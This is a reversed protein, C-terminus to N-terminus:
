FGFNVGFTFTRTNPYMGRKDVGAELGTVNIDPTLGSYGSITALNTVNGYIRLNRIFKNHLFSFTYGLTVNDIKLFNGKELYYTSFIPDQTVGSNLADKYVNTGNKDIQANTGFYVRGENFIDYDFMGRLFFSFDFNKYTFTNQLAAKFKPLGNGIFTRDADSLGEKGDLDRINYTGDANIGDCIYGYFSGVPQGEQLRQAYGLNGPSPISYRDEYSAKYLDNSLSTLKNKEWSFTLNATYSFDKTKVVEGNVSLEIGTNKMTGVNTLIKDYILSPQQATYEGILDKTTRQYWDITGSLRNNFFGYDFGINLSIAKEWKLDPNPNNGPGYTATLWNGNIADWNGAGTGYRILSQYPDNPLSGTVGYGVRFKLIDLANFNQMFEERSLMWGASVSPFYAWKNNAGFKSSGERRISASAMYKGDYNYNARAFFAILKSTKKESRMDALGDKLYSGAFLNNSEFADTLFGFNKASFFEEDFDQYSYGLLGTIHHVNHISTTYNATWEMTKNTQLWYKKYAEGNDGGKIANYSKRSRYYSTYHDNKELAFFGAVTLGRIIEYQAKFSSLLNKKESKRTQQNLKAVPNWDDYGAYTEYFSGDENHIPITPNMRTAQYFVDYDNYTGNKTDEDQALYSSKIYSNSLNFSLLLKDEFSRHNVAISGNITERDSNIVIGQNKRYNLSARYSMQNNGGTATLNHIHSINNKNLLLDYADERGGFDRIRDNGTSKGYDAFAQATLIDPRKAVQENMIYGSYDIQSIGIQPRKTTVIIVGNNGRTGYIAAASGDKLVDIAEIDEPAIANLSAMNGPIGDIIILPENTGKLSSAGRMQINPTANPDASNRSITLGAVRGEVLQMPNVVPAKNFDSAKVSTVSSTIEGKKQSGYGVVVVEDLVETDESLVVQLTQQGNYPVEKSKFGIFSFVLTGNKNAVDLSFNGNFDTATGNTTGKAVISVGILPEGKQDKVIGKVTVGQQAISHIETKEREAQTSHGAAYAPQFIFSLCLLLSTRGGASALSVRMKGESKKKM